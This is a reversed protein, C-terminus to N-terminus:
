PLYILKSNSMEYSDSPTQFRVAELDIPILPPWSHSQRLLHHSTPLPVEKSKGSAFNHERHNSRWWSSDLNDPLQGGSLGHLKWQFCTMNLTVVPWMVQDPAFPGVNGMLFFPFFHPFPFSVAPRYDKEKMKGKGRKVWERMKERTWDCWKRRIISIVM